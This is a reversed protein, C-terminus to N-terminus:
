GDREKLGVLGFWPVRIRVDPSEKAGVLACFCSLIGLECSRKGWCPEPPHFDYQPPRFEYMYGDMRTIRNNGVCLGQIM